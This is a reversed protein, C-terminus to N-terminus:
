DEPKAPKSPRLYEDLHDLMFDLRAVAKPTLGSLVGEFRAISPMLRNTERELTAAWGRVKKIKEEAEEKLRKAREWAKREDVSSPKGMRRDGHRANVYERWAEKMKEHRRRLQLRWYRLQEGNLWNMMISIDNSMSDLAVRAQEEFKLLRHRFRLIVEPSQIRASGRRSM